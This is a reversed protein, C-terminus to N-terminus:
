RPAEFHRTLNFFLSQSQADDYSDRTLLGLNIGTSMSVDQTLKHSYAVRADVRLQDSTDRNTATATLGFNMSSLPSFEHTVNGDLRTLVVETGDDASRVARSATAQLRDRKLEHMYSLSGIFDTSGSEDGYSVGVMGSFEGNKTERNRLVRVDDRAGNQTVSRGYSITYVGLGDERTVGAGVTVGDNQDDAYGIRELDVSSYGLSLNLSTAADIRQQVGLSVADTHRHTQLDNDADYEVHSMDLALSTMSSLEATLGLSFSDSRSDSNSDSADGSYSLRSGSYGFTYGLPMDIGGQLGLQVRALNRQGKGDYVLLTGADDYSISQSTVESQAFSLGASLETRPARHKLSFQLVPYAGNNGDDSWIPSTEALFHLQTVTTNRDYSYRLAANAEASTDTGGPDLDLNRGARGGITVDFASRIGVDSDQAFVPLAFNFAAISLATSGALGILVKGSVPRKM